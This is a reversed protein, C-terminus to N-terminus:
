VERNLYRVNFILKRRKVQRDDEDLMLRRDKYITFQQSNDIFRYDELKRWINESITDLETTDPDNGWVDVDLVFVEQKSIMFSNPFSFVVYPFSAKKNASGFFVRSHETLLINKIAPALNIM